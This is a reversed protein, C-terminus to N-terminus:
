SGPGQGRIAALLEESSATKLVYSEAGARCMAEMKDPENYMSLAIVRTKPLYTKIQRTAEGGSMLPMSVDMIVVDPRLENTMDVADRGNAAEGVVMVDPMEQLLAALGQRVIEHDDVLLVRLAGGSFPPSVAAPVYVLDETTKETSKAKLGDPVIIHFRSGRGKASKIKMRDDLLEIRERIGLLGFGSTDKLEQPDFGRGQDSVSLCVCRRIRRVRIAAEGVRAHKVVNFLMEQAARFLFLTLAESQLTEVGSVDVQVTLGYQARVRSVLWQLVEALDNMHLVAPSLDHSLGRSKEIAEKLMKDVRGVIEAQAEPRARGKLLNLQFKAGAIQQQLDEHLIIAIRRREREETQSLELTLKQLQQARQSVTENLERLAVEAQKRETIDLDMELILPSGDVDTFPFDHADIITRGDPGTVEWRHPRGTELVRYTQCFECPQTRGFCYEYCHRGRAEGFRERFSRNAFVVHYDPTLLCTMAPLAELVDYLRQREHEVEATRAVVRRELTANLERLAEEARRRETADIGVALFEKLRGDGDYVGSNTWEMWVREGNKRLNENANSHFRDPDKAIEEVMAALDRGTTEQEPIITGVAHRGILEEASYGFFRLARENAFRIIGQPDVRLIVATTNQVVGRYRQESERLAEDARKRETIDLFSAMVCIPTGAENLVASASLYLNRCAGDKRVAVLEGMWGQGNQIAQVVESAQQPEKWFDLVSRGLVEDEEEYGWLKLFAPNVYTLHGQPDAMAIGNLSSAIAREKIKLIEEARKRETIDMVIGLMRTCPGDSEYQFIGRDALWHVGGDPWVVRYQAEYPAQETQCRRLQAEVRPLDEPHVREAWDQYHYYRSITTAATTTTRLGLLRAVQESWLTEDTAVDWEYLGIRTGSTALALRERSSQLEEAHRRLDEEQMRLNENAEKVEQQKAQLLDNATRLQEAQAQLDEYANRLAEEAKKRETIDHGVVTAGLPEGNADRTFTVDLLVDLIRGGKTKIRYEINGDPEEGQLWRDIRTQFRVRSNADLLDFPHMALLEERSYGTLQCVTDNVSTLKRRRFDIEYIGAPACRLLERYRFESEELAQEHERLVRVSHASAELETLDSAVLCISPHDGVELPGAALQVPVPTGDAARLLLHRRVPSLHAETLLKQLSYQQPKAVFATVKHGIARQISTKMLECFRRNCFLITGNPDVTLAAEHMTEVIVRYVHEAGTLSYVQEGQPGAVVLGDVDGRHIAELTQEAEELRRRLDEGRERAPAKPRHGEHNGSM